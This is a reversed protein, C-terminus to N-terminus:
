FKLLCDCNQGVFKKQCFFSVLKITLFDMKAFFHNDKNKRWFPCLPHKKRYFQHPKKGSFIQQGFNRNNTLIGIQKTNNNCKPAM